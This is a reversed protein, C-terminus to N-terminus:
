STRRSGVPRWAVTRSTRIKARDADGLSRSVCGTNERPPNGSRERGKRARCQWFPDNLWRVFSARRLRYPGTQGARGLAEVIDEITKKLPREKMAMVARRRADLALAEAEAYSIAGLRKRNLSWFPQSNRRSLQRGHGRLAGRLVASGASRGALDQRQRAARCSAPPAKPRARTRRLPSSPVSRTDARPFRSSSTWITGIPQM